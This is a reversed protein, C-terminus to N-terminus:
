SEQRTSKIREVRKKIDPWDKETTTPVLELFRKFLNDIDIEALARPGWSYLRIKEGEQETAQFEVNLYLRKVFSDLCSKLSDGKIEFAELSNELEKETIKEEPSIFIDMLIFYLTTLEECMSDSYTIVDNFEPGTNVLLYGKKDELEFIRLGFIKILEKNAAQLIAGSIKYHVNPFALKNLELRKIPTRNQGLVILAHVCSKILRQRSSEELEEIIRLSDATPRSPIFM